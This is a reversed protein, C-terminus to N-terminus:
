PRAGRRHPNWRHLPDFGPWGLAGHPLRPVRLVGQPRGGHNRSQGLTRPDDDDHCPGPDRGGLVLLEFANDLIASDSGGEITVPFIKKMDDGFLPSALMSQRAHMWNVNGRLTNIEGNHCLYRFPQALDWTPFTNTSYRQHVMALASTMDTDRLDPYYKPVQDALLQGKYIFTRSSLSPVYYYKSQAIGSGRVTNVVRKRIVYLKRDFALSDTQPVTGKKIFVQEIVPEVDRATQGIPSNDRPVERWGLLVQGEEAVIREFTEKCFARQKSDTPLFVLGSGYEGLAPLDFGASSAVKQFFAHPMQILVGAGDGTLPDCGCAGRHTLNELVQLAGSIIEHSKQGKIHAVFGVGCADHEYRPDYLGTKSPPGFRKM